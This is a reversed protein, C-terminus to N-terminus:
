VLVWFEEARRLSRDHKVACLHWQSVEARKGM